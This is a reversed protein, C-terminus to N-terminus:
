YIAERVLEFAQRVVAIFRQRSEYRGSGPLGPVLKQHFSLRLEVNDPSGKLL